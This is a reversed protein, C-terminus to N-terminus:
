NEHLYTVLNPPSSAGHEVEFVPRGQLVRLERANTSEVRGRPQSLVIVDAAMSHAQLARQAALVDHLTGLRDEAVLLVRAQFRARLVSALDANNTETSLPSFAGGATEVLVRRRGLTTSARQVWGVIASLEIPTQTRRAELHPSVPEAFAYLPPHYHHGAARALARADSAGREPDVGTEVPKLACCDSWAAALQCGVYTKGIETGTGLVVLAEM